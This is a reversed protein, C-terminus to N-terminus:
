LGTRELTRTRKMHKGAREASFSQWMFPIMFDILHRFLSIPASSNEPLESLEEFFSERGKVVLVARKSLSNEDVPRKFRSQNERVFM